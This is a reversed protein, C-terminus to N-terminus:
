QNGTVELRNERIFGIKASFVREAKVAVDDLLLVNGAMQFFM